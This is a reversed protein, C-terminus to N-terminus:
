SPVSHVSIAGVQNQPGVQGAPVPAPEAKPVPTVEAPLAERARRAADREILEILEAPETRLARSRARALADPTATCLRRRLNATGVVVSAVGRRRRPSGGRM